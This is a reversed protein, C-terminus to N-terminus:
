AARPKALVKNVDITVGLRERNQIMWEGLAASVTAARGVPPTGPMRLDGVVYGDGERDVTLVITRERTAVDPTAWVTINQDHNSGRRSPQTSLAQLLGKKKLTGMVSGWAFKSATEFHVHRELLDLQVDECTFPAQVREAYAMVHARAQEGWRSNRREAKALSAGIGQDQTMPAAKRAGPGSVFMGCSAQVDFGVRPVIRSGPQGCVRELKAFQRAIVEDSPERGQAPSFPNYRVLNFRTDLGSELVAACVREITEDDDNEGEIFAWHLVVDGGTAKQWDRLRRLAVKPDAAKPLWRRRFDPDMSYLSYYVSVGLPDPGLIDILPVDEIEKPYITSLNFRPNLGRAQAAIALMTRLRAWRRRVLPNLFPEGRAMFNFNVRKATRNPLSAHHALVQHAQRMYAVFSAPAMMTQGAQTLHCMRCARDCGSHSSLYCIFYDPTRQVFRAEFAGGDDTRHVFNVSADERSVLRRFDM